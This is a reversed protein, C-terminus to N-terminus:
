AGRLTRIRDLVRLIERGDRTMQRDGAQGWRLMGDRDVIFTSRFAVNRDDDLVGYAAIVSRHMDSLLLFPVGRAEVFAKHCPLSDGSIGIM